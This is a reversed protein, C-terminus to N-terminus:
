NPISFRSRSDRARREESLKNQEITKANWEESLATWRKDDCDLLAREMQYALLPFGVFFARSKNKITAEFKTEMHSLVESAEDAAGARYLADAILTSMWMEEDAFEKGLDVLRQRHKLVGSSSLSHILKAEEDRSNLNGAYEPLVHAVVLAFDDCDKLSYRLSTIESRVYLAQAKLAAHCCFKRVKDPDPLHKALRALESICDVLFDDDKESDTYASVLQFLAFGARPKLHEPLSIRRLTRAASQHVAVFQDLLLACFVEYVLPPLNQRNRTPIESLASAAKARGLVDAGVMGSYLLPLVAKLGAVDTAMEALAKVAIGRLLSREEPIAQVAAIFQQRAADSRAAKAATRLFNKVVEYAASRLNGRELHELFSVNESQQADVNCIHQDLLLAAGIIKDIHEEALPWLEDPPYRLASSVTSLVELDFVQSPLWTLRDLAIRLRKEPLSAEDDRFSRNRLALSYLNAINRKAEINAGVGLDQLASDVAEPELNWLLDIAGAMDGLSAHDGLDSLLQRARVYRSTAPRLFNSASDPDHELILRMTRGALQSASATKRDLISDIGARASEPKVDWIALLLKPDHHPQLGGFYEEHDPSAFKAAEPVLEVLDPESIKALNASMIKAATERGLGDRFLRQALLTTRKENPAIHAGIELALLAILGSQSAQDFVLDLIRPDFREPALRAAEVLRHRDVNEHNRDYSDLDDIIAQNVADLEPRLALRAANRQALAQEARDQEVKQRANAISKAEDREAVLKSLNPFGVPSRAECGSCNRDYFDLASEGFDWCAMGGAPAHDCEMSFHGIPLGTSQEIMGIGGMRRTKAHSCWNHMLTMAEANQKGAEIAREIEDKGRMSAMYAICSIKRIEKQCVL